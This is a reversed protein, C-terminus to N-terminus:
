SEHQSTRGKEGWGTEMDRGGEKERKSESERERKRARKRERVRSIFGERMRTKCVKVYVAM